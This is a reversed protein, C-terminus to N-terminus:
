EAYNLSFAVGYRTSYQAMLGRFRDSMQAGERLHIVIEEIGWCRARLVASRLALVASEDDVTNTSKRIYPTVSYDKNVYSYGYPSGFMDLYALTRPPTIIMPSPRESPQWPSNSYSSDSNSSPEEAPPEPMEIVATLTINGLPMNFVISQTYIDPEVGIDRSLEWRIFTGGEPVTATVYVPDLPFQFSGTTLGNDLTGGVVYVTYFPFDNKFIWNRYTELFSEFNYSDAANDRNNTTYDGSAYAFPAYTYDLTGNIGYTYGKVTVDTTATPAIAVTGATQKIGYGSTGNFTGGTITINDSSGGVKLGDAGTISGGNITVTAAAHILLGSGTSSVLTTGDNITLTVTSSNSVSIADDSNGTFTGGSLTITSAGNVYMGKEGSVSGGTMSLSAPSVMKIGSASNAGSLSVSGSITLATSGGVYVAADNNLEVTNGNSTITGGSLAITGGTADYIGFKGGSVTGGTMSLISTTEIAKEGTTSISGGSITIPVSTTIAPSATTSISGGNISVSGSGSFTITCSGSISATWNVVANNSLNFTINNSNTATGSITSTETIDYTGNTSGDIVIDAASVKTPLLVIIVLLAFLFTTSFKILKLPQILTKM